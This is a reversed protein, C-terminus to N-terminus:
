TGVSIIETGTTMGGTRNVSLPRLDPMVSQKEAPTLRQWESIEEVLESDPGAEDGEKMDGLEKRKSGILISFWQDWQM